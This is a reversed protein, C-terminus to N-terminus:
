GAGRRLAAVVREAIQQGARQQAEETQAGMHPTLVVRPHGILRPDKYVDSAYGLIQEKELADLIAGEDVVEARATNVVV